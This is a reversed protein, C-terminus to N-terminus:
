PLWKKGVGWITNKDRHYKSDNLEKYILPSWNGSMNEGTIDCKIGAFSPYAVIDAIQLGYVNKEKPKMKITKSTLVQQIRKGQIYNTGKQYTDEFIEKLERDKNKGRAEIMVDGRGNNGELFRVYREILINLCYYYPHNHFSGYNNLHALKDIVVSIVIYKSNIVIDLLDNGFGQHIAQDNLFEFGNQKHM